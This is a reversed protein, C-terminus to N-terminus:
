NFIEFMFKPLDLLPNGRINKWQKRKNNGVDYMSSYVASLPLQSDKLLIIKDSLIIRHILGKLIPFGM